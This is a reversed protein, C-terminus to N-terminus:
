SHLGERPSVLEPCPAWLTILRLPIGAGFELLIEAIEINGSACATIFATTRSRTTRMNILGADYFLRVIMYAVQKHISANGAGYNPRFSALASLLNMRPMREDDDDSTATIAGPDDRMKNVLWRKLSAYEHAKILGNGGPRQRFVTGPVDDLIPQQM